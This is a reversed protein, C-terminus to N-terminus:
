GSIQYFSIKSHFFPNEHESKARDRRLIFFATEWLSIAIASVDLVILLKWTMKLVYRIMSVIDSVLDHHINYKFLKLVSFSISTKNASAIAELLPHLWTVLGHIDLIFIEM